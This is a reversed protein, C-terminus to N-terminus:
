RKQYQIVGGKHFFVIVEKLHPWSERIAIRESMCHM